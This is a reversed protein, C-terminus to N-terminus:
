VSIVFCGVLLVLLSLIVGMFYKSFLVVGLKQIVEAGFELIEVIRSDLFVVWGGGIVLGGDGLVPYCDVYGFYVLWLLLGAGSLIVLFFCGEALYIRMVVPILTLMAIVLFLVLVAGVYVIVYIYGFFELYYLYLLVGSVLYVFILYFASLVPNRAYFVM